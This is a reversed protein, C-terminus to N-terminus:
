LPKSKSLLLYNLSKNLDIQFANFFFCIYKYSKWINSKTLKLCMSLITKQRRAEPREEFFFFCVFQMQGLQTVRVLIILPISIRAKTGDESRWSQQLHNRSSFYTFSKVSKKKKKEMRHPVTWKSNIELILYNKTLHLTRTWFHLDRTEASSRALYTTCRSCFLITHHM